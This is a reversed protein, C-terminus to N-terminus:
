STQLKELNKALMKIERYTLNSKFSNVRVTCAVVNGKVYGKSSDVRDVSRATENTGFETGTYFCKKARLLNRVSTLSLNFELGEKKCKERISVYKSVVKDDTPNLM